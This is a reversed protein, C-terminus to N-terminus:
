PVIIGMIYLIPSFFTNIKLIEPVPAMKRDNQTRWSVSYSIKHGGLCRIHTIFFLVNTAQGINVLSFVLPDVRCLYGDELICSFSITTIILIELSLAM